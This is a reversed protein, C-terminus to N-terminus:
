VRQAVNLADKFESAIYNTDTDRWLIWNTWDAKYTFGLVPGQTGSM